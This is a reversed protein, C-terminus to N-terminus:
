EKAIFERMLKENREWPADLSATAADFEAAWEAAWEADFEAAWEAALAAALSIDWETDLSMDWSADRAAARKAALEDDSIEGAHYRRITDSMNRVADSNSYPLGPEIVDAIYLCWDRYPWCRLARMAARIGNIDLIQELTVPTDPDSTGITGCLKKWWSECPHYERIEGLTTKLNPM